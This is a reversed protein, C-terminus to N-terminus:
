RRTSGVRMRGRVVTVTCETPGYGNELWCADACTDSLDQPLAEGGVYLLRLEPLERAPGPLGDRACHCTSSASLSPMGLATQDDASFSHSSGCPWLIRVLPALSTPLHGACIAM